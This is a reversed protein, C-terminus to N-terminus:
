DTQWKMKVVQTTFLRIYIFTLVGLNQSYTFCTIVCLFHNWFPVSMSSIVVLVASSRRPFILMSSRSHGKVGLIASKLSNKECNQAAVHMELTFQVLIAPSLGLCGTYTIKKM